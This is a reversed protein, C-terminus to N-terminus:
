LPHHGAEGILSMQGLTVFDVLGAEIIQRRTRVCLYTRETESADGHALGERRTLEDMEATTLQAALLLSHHAVVTAALQRRAVIRFRERPLRLGTEGELEDIGVDIPEASPKLSSGGPFEYVFGDANMAPTRYEKVLVFRDDARTPGPSWAAVTAISPRIIVAENSKVRDEGRVAISVHL